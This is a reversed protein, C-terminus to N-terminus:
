ILEKWTARIIAHRIMTELDDKSVVIAMNRSAYPGQVISDYRVSRFDKYEEPIRGSPRLQKGSQIKIVSALLGNSEYDNGGAFEVVPWNNVWVVVRRRMQGAAYRNTFGIKFTHTRGNINRTTEYGNEFEEKARPWQYEFPGISDFHGSEYMLENNGTQTVPLLAHNGSVFKMISADTFRWETGLKFGQINGKELESLIVDEGVKLYDAVDQLTMINPLSSYTM